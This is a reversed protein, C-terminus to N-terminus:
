IDEPEPSSFSEFPSLPRMHIILRVRRRSAARRGARYFVTALTVGVLTLLAIFIVRAVRVHEGRCDGSGARADPHAEGDYWGGSALCAVFLVALGGIEWRLLFSSRSQELWPDAGPFAEASSSLLADLENM